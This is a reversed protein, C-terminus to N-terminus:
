FNHGYSYTGTERNFRGIIDDCSEGNIKILDSFEAETGLVDSRVSAIMKDANCELDMCASNTIACKGEIIGFCGSNPNGTYLAFDGCPGPNETSDVTSCDPDNEPNCPTTSLPDTPNVASCNPDNEPNCLATTPKNTPNVNPCDPDNDQNCPATTPQDTPNVIPCDPDNEPNCTPAMTPPDTPNVTSCDPDNEPNCKIPDVM